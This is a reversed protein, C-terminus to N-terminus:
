LKSSLFKRLSAEDRVGPADAISGDVIFFVNPLATVNYLSLASGTVDCVNTWPLEQSKVVSAWMSKDSSAAVSYIDFGKSHYDRYLPKMVDQNFIKQSADEPNWFYIMVVKSSLSSLKVKHGHFDSLEMDPFGRQEANRIRADMSMLQQRRAAEDSLAKVYRSDPYVTKLSDCVNRFHIADTTQSFVPVGAGFTQYLVPVSTLSYPNQLIYKVRSRYYSVYMSTLDRRLRAAEDTDPDLDALKASLSSFRDKFDAEDREVEMLKLTEDSGTVSYTGLTDSSVKVKDGRQLLLSAVKTDQYFLYIFEPQGKEMGIRCRYQGHMDTKVTDIVDFRNVDLLKVIIEADPADSLTGEVM